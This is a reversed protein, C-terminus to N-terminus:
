PFLLDIFPEIDFADVRGNQDIDALLADCTPHAQRYGEPDFLALLFPEIDFADIEGDCNVDGLSFRRMYSIAGVLTFPDFDSVWTAEGFENLDGDFSWSSGATLQWFTEDRFLWRQWCCFQSDPHWRNFAVMGADNLKLAGGWNTLATTKGNQWLQIERNLEPVPRHVWGVLTNNNISPANPQFQGDTLTTTVGNDYMRIESEWDPQACFDFRVWVIQDRGNLQPVQNYVDDPVADTTIPTIEFGDYFFIDGIPGGTCRSRGMEGAWTVHGRSNVKPAWDNMDNDTLRSIVGDPTRMMIEATPGFLGEPGIFRSWVVVGDDNLDPLADRVNDDTLRITQGTDDDYLFIEGSEDTGDVRAEYVVQGRNNLHPWNHFVPAETLRIVEYGPPIQGAAPSVFWVGFAIVVVFCHSKM